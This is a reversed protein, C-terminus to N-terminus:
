LLVKGLVDKGCLTWGKKQRPVVVSYADVSTTSGMWGDDEWGCILRAVCSERGGERWREMEIECDRGLALDHRRATEPRGGGWNDIETEAGRRGRSAPNRSPLLPSRSM